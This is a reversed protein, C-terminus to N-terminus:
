VLTKLENVDFVDAKRFLLLLIHEPKECCGRNDLEAQLIRVIKKVDDDIVYIVTDDAFLQIKCTKLSKVIDNIYVM